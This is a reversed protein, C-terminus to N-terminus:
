GRATVGCSDLYAMLDAEWVRTGRVSGALKFAKLAGAEIAKYLSRAPIGTAGAIEPVTLARGREELTM